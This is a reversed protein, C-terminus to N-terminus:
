RLDAAGGREQAQGQACVRARASPADSCACGARRGPNSGRRRYEAETLDSAVAAGPQLVSFPVDKPDPVGDMGGGVTCEREHGWIVIDMCAPLLVDKIASTGAAASRARNQHLALLHFWSRILLAILPCDLPM